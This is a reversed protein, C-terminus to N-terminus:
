ADPCYNTCVLEHNPCSAGIHRLTETHPHGYRRDLGASILMYGSRGSLAKWLNISSSSAAGHHPIKIIDFTVGKYQRFRSVCSSVASLLTEEPSDGTLLVRLSKFRVCLICSLVNTSKSENSKGFPWGELLNNWSDEEFKQVDSSKPGLIDVSVDTFRATPKFGDAREFSWEKPATKEHEQINEKVAAMCEMLKKFEGCEFVFGAKQDDPLMTFKRLAAEYGRRFKSAFHILRKVSGGKRQVWDIVDVLGTYHDRDPHTLCLLDIDYIGGRREAFENLYNIVPPIDSGTPKNCDVLM